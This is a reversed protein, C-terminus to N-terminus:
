AYATIVTGTGGFDVYLGTSFRVGVGGFNLMYGAASSAPVVAIVTGAGAAVADRVVVTAASLAATVTIGYFVGAGTKVLEDATSEEYKAVPAVNVVGATGADLALVEGAGDGRSVLKDAM